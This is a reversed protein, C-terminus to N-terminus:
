QIPVCSACLTNQDERCEFGMECQLENCSSCNCNVNMCQFMGDICQCFDCANFYGSGNEYYTDGLDCGDQTPEICRGCHDPDLACVMPLMGNACDVHTDCQDMTACTDCVIQGCVWNGFEDCGGGYSTCGPPAAPCATPDMPNPVTCTCILNDCIWGQDTCTSTWTCGPPPMPCGPSPGNCSCSGECTWGNPTCVPTLRCDPTGCEPPPEECACVDICALVGGDLCECVKCPDAVKEYVPVENGRFCCADTPAAAGSATPDIVNCVTRGSECMCALCPGNPIPDGNAYSVNDVLCGGDLLVDVQCSAALTTAGACLVLAVAARLFTV